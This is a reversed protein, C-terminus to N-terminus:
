VNSFFLKAVYNNILEFFNPKSLLFLLEFCPFEWVDDSNDPNQAKKEVYAEIFSGGCWLVWVHLKFLCYNFFCSPPPNSYYYYDNNYSSKCQPCEYIAINSQLLEMQFWRAKLFIFKISSVIIIQEIAKYKQCKNKVIM